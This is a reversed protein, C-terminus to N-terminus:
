ASFAYAIFRFYFTLEVENSRNYQGLVIEFRLSSAGSTRLYGFLLDFLKELLGSVLCPKVLEYVVSLGLVRLEGATLNRLFLKLLDLLLESLHQDPFLARNGRSGVLLALDVQLYFKLLSSDQRLGVGLLLQGVLHFSRILFNIFIELLM